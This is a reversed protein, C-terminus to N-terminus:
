VVIKLSRGKLNRVISQVAGVSGLMGTKVAKIKFDSLVSKLQADIVKEPVVFSSQIGLTNQATIATVVTTGYVGYNQFTKLDSQIGAGGGSDSGAITLVCRLNKRM